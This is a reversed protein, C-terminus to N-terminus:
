VYDSWVTISVEQSMPRPIGPGRRSAVPVRFQKPHGGQRALTAAMAEEFFFVGLAFAFRVAFAPLARFAAGFFTARAAAFFVLGAFFGAAPLTDDFSVVAM